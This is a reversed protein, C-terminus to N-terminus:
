KKNKKKNPLVSQLKDSERFLSELMEDSLPTPNLELADELHLVTHGCINEALVVSTDGQRNTITSMKQSNVGINGAGNIGGWGNTSAAVKNFKPTEFHTEGDPNCEKCVRYHRASQKDVETPHGRYTKGCYMVATRRQGGFNVPKPM